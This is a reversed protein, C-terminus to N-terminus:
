HLAAKITQEAIIEAERDLLYDLRQMVDDRQLYKLALELFVFQHREESKTISQYFRKTRGPPLAEGVLGFREHGRAEIVSGLILRDMMYVDSGKRLEKRLRNVYRDKTDAVPALGRELILKLVERFHVMEEVAVEAMVSVLEPRDPYHSLMSVAMGSAKKEASAHDLLFSDFDALVAETWKPSTKYKLEFM